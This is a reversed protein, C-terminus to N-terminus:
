WELDRKIATNMGAIISETPIMISEYITKGHVRVEDFNALNAIRFQIRGGTEVADLFYYQGPEFTFTMDGSAIIINYGSPRDYRVEFSHTGPKLVVVNTGYMQVYNISNDSQVVQKAGKGNITMIRTSILLNVLYCHEEIPKSPDYNDPHPKIARFFRGEAFNEATRPVSVCGILFFGMVLVIATIGYLYNKKM